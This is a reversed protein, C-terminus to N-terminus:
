IEIGLEDALRRATEEFAFWALTNKLDHELRLPEGLEQEYEIRLEEIEDYHRDFFAHTDAYYILGSIMGSVCGHTLLDRFFGEVEADDQYDPLVYGIVEQRIDGKQNENKRLKTIINATM